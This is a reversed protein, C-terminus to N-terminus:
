FTHICGYLGIGGDMCRSNACWNQAAADRSRSVKLARRYLLLEREGNLLM